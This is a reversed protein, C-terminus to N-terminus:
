CGFLRQQIKRIDRLLAAPNLTQYRQKLQQQAVTSIGESELVRQYPTKAPKGYVKRVQSGIREKKILKMTVQFFNRYLSLLEYMRNLLRLQEPTELRQYQVYKRVVNDNRQEIHAQDNKQYPRCRTFTLRNQKAYWCVHANIFVADNDSDIGLLSFPLRGRITDIAQTALWRSRGMFACCETWHTAIDTANLTNLYEGALVEGCHAVLDIELFGPAQDDWDTFVRIPIEHKLLSGSKTTTRGKLRLRRRVPTLLRDITAPSISLLLQRDQDSLTLEGHRTLSEVLLPIMPAFRKGCPADAIAWLRRLVVFVPRYASPKQRRRQSTNRRPSSTLLIAAYSRNYGTLRIVENLLVGKEKKVARHYEKALSRAINQRTRLDM